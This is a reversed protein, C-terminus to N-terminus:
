GEFQLRNRIRHEPGALDDDIDDRRANEGVRVLHEAALSRIQEIQRDHGPRAADAAHAADSRVGRMEFGAVPDIAIRGHTGAVIRDRGIDHQLAPACAPFTTEAKLLM